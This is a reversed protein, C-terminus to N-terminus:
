RGGERGPERRNPTERSARKARHTKAREAELEEIWANEEKKAHRSAEEFVLREHEYMVWGLPGIPLADEPTSPRAGVPGSGVLVRLAKLWLWLWRRFSTM